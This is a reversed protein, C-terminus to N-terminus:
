RPRTVRSQRLRAPRGTASPAATAAWRRPFRLTPQPWPPSASAVSHPCAPAAPPVTATPCLPAPHRERHQRLSARASRWAPAARRGDRSPPLASPHLWRWVDGYSLPYLPRRRLPLDPTRTEGPVGGGPARRNADAGRRARAFAMRAPNRTSSASKAEPIADPGRCRWSSAIELSRPGVAPGFRAVGAPRLVPLHARAHHLRPRLRRRRPLDSLPARAHGDGGLWVPLDVNRAHPGAAARRSHSRSPIPRPVRPHDDRRPRYLFRLTGSRRSARRGRRRGLLAGELGGGPLWEGLGTGRPSRRRVAYAVRSGDHAEPVAEHM